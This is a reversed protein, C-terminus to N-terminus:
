PFQDPTEAPSIGFRDDFAGWEEIVTLAASCHMTVTFQDFFGHQGLLMPWPARWQEPFGVEAEWEIFQDDDGDPHLLRIRMDIFSVEPNDGGIGLRRAHQAHRLDAKADSPLWRAALVHESGSDVFAKVPVSLDAGVLQVSVIPRLVGRQRPADAQFPYRWPLPRDTMGAGGDSFTLRLRGTPASFSM